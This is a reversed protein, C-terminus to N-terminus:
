SLIVTDVVPAHRLILRGRVKAELFVAYIAIEGDLM